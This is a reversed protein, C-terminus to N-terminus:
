PYGTSCYSQGPVWVRVTETKYCGPQWVKQYTNPGIEQYVWTGPVWVQREQLEYHGSPQQVVVVPPPCYQQQVVVPQATYCRAERRYSQRYHHNNAVLVGGLFGAVASWEKNIAKAEMSPGVMLGLTLLSVVIWSKM